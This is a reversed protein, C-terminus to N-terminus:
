WAQTPSGSLTEDKFKWVDRSKRFYDFLWSLLIYFCPFIYKFFLTLALSSDWLSCSCISLFLFTSQAEYLILDCNHFPPLLNRLMVIVLVRTKVREHREKGISLNIFRPFEWRPWSHKSKNEDWQNFPVSSALKMVEVNGPLKLFCNDSWGSINFWSRWSLSRVHQPM